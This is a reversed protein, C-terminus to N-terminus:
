PQCDEIVMNDAILSVSCTDKIFPTIDFEEHPKLISFSQIEERNKKYLILKCNSYHRVHPFFITAYSKDYMPMICIYDDNVVPKISDNGTDNLNQPLTSEKIKDVYPDVISYCSELRENSYKFFLTREIDYTNTGDPKRVCAEETKRNAYFSHADLIIIEDLIHQIIEKNTKGYIESLMDGHDIYSVSFLGSDKNCYFECSNSRDRFFDAEARHGRMLSPELDPIRDLISYATNFVPVLWQIQEDTLM